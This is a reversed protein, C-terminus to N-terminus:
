FFVDLVDRPWKPPRARKSREEDAWSFPAMVAFTAAVLLLAFLFTNRFYRSIM